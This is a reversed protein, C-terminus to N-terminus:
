DLLEVKSKEVILDNLNVAYLSEGDEVIRVVHNNYQSEGEYKDVM